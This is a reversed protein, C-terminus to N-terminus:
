SEIKESVAKVFWNMEDVDKEISDKIESLMSNVIVLDSIVKQNKKYQKCDDPLRSIVDHMKKSYFEAQTALEFTNILQRNAYSLSDKDIEDNSILIQKMTMNM